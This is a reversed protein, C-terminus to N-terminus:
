STMEGALISCRLDMAELPTHKLNLKNKKKKKSYVKGEYIYLVLFVLIAFLHLLLALVLFCMSM